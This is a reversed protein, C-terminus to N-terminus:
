RLIGNIQDFGFMINMNQVAQGSAGKLVNDIACVAILPAGVIGTDLITMDCYNTNAVNKINPLDDSERVRVFPANSYAKRLFEICKAASANAQFYITSLMGRSIPLLHPSFTIQINKSAAKSLEQEIEPTHRHSHGISYPSFNESAECFLSTLKLSRGAGSVGSKSDAIIGHVDLAPAKVLPLLPLLISTPYCGPNAVLRAAGIATSNHECLGYVAEALLEPCPHTEKYWVAYEKENNLRFDASLDVVRVGKDLFAKCLPASAAHPLCSFVVDTRKSQAGEVSILELDCIRMMEPFVDSLRKGCYTQSSIFGIEAHPHSVIMRVLEVGTYGTAGLIGVSIKKSM